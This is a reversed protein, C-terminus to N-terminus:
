FEMLQEIFVLTMMIDWIIKVEKFYNWLCHGKLIIFTVKQFVRGPRSGYIHLVSLDLAREVVNILQNGQAVIDGVANSIWLGDFVGIDHTLPGCFKPCKNRM